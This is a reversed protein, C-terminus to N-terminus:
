TGRRLQTMSGSTWRSVHRLAMKIGNDYRKRTICCTMCQLFLLFLLLFFLVCCGLPFNNGSFCNGEGQLGACLVNLIRFFTECPCLSLPLQDPGRWPM